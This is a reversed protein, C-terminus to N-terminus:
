DLVGEDFYLIMQLGIIFIRMDLRKKVARGEAKNKILPLVKQMKEINLFESAKGNIHKKLLQEIKEYDNMFRYFVTPVTAGTKNNRTYIEKPTFKKIANRYVSRPLAKNYKVHNPLALFCEMLDVDLLPYASDIGRARLSLNSEELRTLLTTGNVRSILFDNLSSFRSKKLENKVIMKINIEKKLLHNKMQEYRWHKRYSLNPLIAKINNKFNQFSVYKVNTLQRLQKLKKQLILEKLFYSSMSSVVEDGGFGSFLTDVGKVKAQDYLQDSYLSMASYFPAGIIKMERILEDIIGSGESDINNINIQGSYDVMAQSYPSEDGFPFYKKHFKSNLVHRFSELRMGNAALVGSIGSSDIGGSLESGVKGSIRKNVSQILQVNFLYQSSEKAPELSWYKFIKIQNDCVRIRHAPPLRKINKYFTEEPLPAMGTLVRDIYSINIEYVGLIIKLEKISNSCTFLESNDIYYLPKIGVKDRQAYIEDTKFNYKVFVYEGNEIEQNIIKCNSHSLLIKSEDEYKSEQITEKVFRYYVKSDQFKNYYQVVYENINDKKFKIFSFM